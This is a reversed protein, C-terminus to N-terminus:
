NNDENNNEKPSNEKPLNQIENEYVVKKVTLNGHTNHWDKRFEPMFDELTELKDLLFKRCEYKEKDWNDGKRVSYQVKFDKVLKADDYEIPVYTFASLTSVCEGGQEIFWRLLDRFATALEAGAISCSSTEPVSIYLTCVFNNQANPRISKDFTIGCAMYDEITSVGTEYSDVLEKAMDLVKDIGGYLEQILEDLEEDSISNGTGKEYEKTFFNKFDKIYEEKNEPKNLDNFDKFISM